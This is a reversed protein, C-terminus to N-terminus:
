AIRDPDDNELLGRIKRPARMLCPAYENPIIGEELAIELAEKIHKYYMYETGEDFLPFNGTRITPALFDADMVFGNPRKKSEIEDILHNARVLYNNIELEYKFPLHSM